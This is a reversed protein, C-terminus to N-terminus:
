AETVALLELLNGDPDRFYVSSAPRGDSSIRQAPGEIVAVGNGELQAKAEEVTGEWRFCLDQSGPLPTTAVLDVGNGAQHMNMAARGIRIGKVIVRGDIEHTHLVEAGLVKEYFPVSVDLDAVTIAVHDYGSIM